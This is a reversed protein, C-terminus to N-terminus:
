HWWFCPPQTSSPKRKALLVVRNWFLLKLQNTYSRHENGGFILFHVWGLNCVKGKDRVTGVASSLDPVHLHVDQSDQLEAKSSRQWELEEAPGWFDSLYLNSGSRITKSGTTLRMFHVIATSFALKWIIELLWFAEVHDLAFTMGGGFFQPM